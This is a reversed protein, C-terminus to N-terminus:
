LLLKLQKLLQHLDISGAASSTDGKQSSSYLDTIKQLFKEIETEAVNWRKMMSKTNSKKPASFAKSFETELEFGSVTRAIDDLM